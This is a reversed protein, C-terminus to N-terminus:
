QQQTPFRITSFIKKATEQDAKSKCSVGGTLEPKRFRRDTAGVDSFYVGAYYSYGPEGNKITFTVLKANRGDIEIMEAQYDEEGENDLHNSYQGYDFGLRMTDSSYKEVYSDIGHVDQKKMEPPIYFSFRGKADIRQWGEPAAVESQSMGVLQWSIVIVWLLFIQKMNNIMNM